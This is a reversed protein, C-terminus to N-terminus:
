IISRGRWRKLLVLSILLGIGGGVIYLVPPLGGTTTINVIVTREMTDFGNKRAYIKVNYIGAKTFTYDATFTGGSKTMFVTERETDPDVFDMDVSDAELSNGEPDYTTLQININSGKDMSIIPINDKSDVYPKRVEVTAIDSTDGEKVLVKLIGARKAVYKVIIQSNDNTITVDQDQTTNDINDYILANDYYVQILPSSFEGKLVVEIPNNYFQIQKSELNILSEMQLPEYKIIVFVAVLLIVIFVFKTSNDM